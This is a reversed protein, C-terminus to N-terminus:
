NGDHGGCPLPIFNGNGAIIVDLETKLALFHVGHIESTGTGNRDRVTAVEKKAVLRAIGPRTPNCFRVRIQQLTEIICHCSVLIDYFGSNTRWEAM